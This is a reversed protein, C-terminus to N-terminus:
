LVIVHYGKDTWKRISAHSKYDSVLPIESNKQLDKKVGFAIACADCIEEVVGIRKLHKYDAHFKNDNNRMAKAWRIGTGDFIFTVSDGGEKLQEAYLLAHLARANDEQTTTDAQLIIVFKQAETRKNQEQSSCSFNLVLSSIVLILFLKRM